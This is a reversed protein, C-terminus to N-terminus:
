SKTASENIKTRVYRRSWVILALTVKIYVGKRRRGAGTAGEEYGVGWTDADVRAVKKGDKIVIVDQGDGV